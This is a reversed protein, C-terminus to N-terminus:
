QGAEGGTPDETSSKVNPDILAAARRRREMVLKRHHAMFTAKEEDSYMRYNGDAAKGIVEGDPCLDEDYGVLMARVLGQVHPGAFFADPPNRVTLKKADNELTFVSAQGDGSRPTQKKFVGIVAWLFYGMALLAGISGAYGIVPNDSRSCIWLVAILGSFVVFVTLNSQAFKGSLSISWRGKTENSDRM